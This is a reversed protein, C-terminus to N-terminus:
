QTSGTLHSLTKNVPLAIILSTCEAMQSTFINFYDIHMPVHRVGLGQSGAAEVELTESIRSLTIALTLETLNSGM